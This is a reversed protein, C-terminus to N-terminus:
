KLTLVTGAATTTSAGSAGGVGGGGTAETCCIPAGTAVVVVVTGSTVSGSFVTSTMPSEPVYSAEGARAAPNASLRVRTTDVANGPSPRLRGSSTCSWQDSAMSWKWGSRMM